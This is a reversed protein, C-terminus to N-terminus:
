SRPAFWVWSIGTSRASGASAGRGCTGGALTAGDNWRAAPKSIPPSARRGSPTAASRPLPGRLPVAQHRRRDHPHRARPSCAGGRPFRRNRHRRGHGGHRVGHSRRQPPRSDRRVGGRRRRPRRRASFGRRSRWDQTPLRWPRLPRAGARSSRCSKPIAPDISLTDHHPPNDFAAPRLKRPSASLCLHNATIHQAIGNTIM